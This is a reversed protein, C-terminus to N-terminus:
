AERRQEEPMVREGAEVRVPLVNGEPVMPCTAYPSFVCPPNYALNFDVEVTGDPQVEGTVLFRGGGYTERGNTADGFVLWLRGRIAELAHLRHAVGDILLEVDGPTPGDTIDGVVDAVKITAGPPAPLLRGTARWAPDPDFALVGDFTLLTTARTDRVRLALRGAGRKIVHLRLSALELLTPERDGDGDDALPLTDDVPQGGLRIADGDPHLLVHGDIVELTGAVPPVEGAEAHLVIDSAADSGFTQTGDHLWHLGVLTLWSMPDRLAANRADRAADISTRFAALEADTSPSLAM